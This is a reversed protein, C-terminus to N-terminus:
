NIAQNKEEARSKGPGSGGLRRGRLSDGGSFGPEKWKQLKNCRLIHAM